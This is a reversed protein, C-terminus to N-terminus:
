ISVFEFSFNMQMTRRYPTYSAIERLSRQLHDREMPENYSQVLRAIADLYESRPRYRYFAEGSVTTTCLIGDTALENLAECTSWIDRYIRGAIQYASGELRPNEYYLLLLQLKIPTDIVHELLHQILPDLM